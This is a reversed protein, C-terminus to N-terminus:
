SVRSYPCYNGFEQARGVHGLVVKSVRAIKMRLNEWREGIVPEWTRQEKGEETLGRQFSDRFEGKSTCCLLSQSPDPFLKRNAEIPLFTKSLIKM